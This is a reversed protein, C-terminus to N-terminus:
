NNGDQGVDDEISLGQRFMMHNWLSLSLFFIMAAVIGGCIGASAAKGIRKSLPGEAHPALADALAGILFSLAAIKPDLFAVGGNISIVIIFIHITKSRLLMAAEKTELKVRGRAEFVSRARESM